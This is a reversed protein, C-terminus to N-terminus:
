GAQTIGPVDLARRLTSLTVTTLVFCSMPPLADGYDPAGVGLHFRVETERQRGGAASVRRSSEDGEKLPFRPM